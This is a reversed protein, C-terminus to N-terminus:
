RPAPSGSRPRAPRLAATAGVWPAGSSSGAFGTLAVASSAAADGRPLKSCLSVSPAAPSWCGGGGALPPTAAPAPLSAGSASAPSPSAPRLRSARAWVREVASAIGESGLRSRRRWRPAAPASGSRGARRRRLVPETRLAGRDQGPDVLDLGGEAGVEAEGGGAGDAPHLEHGRGPLFVPDVGVAVPDGVGVVGFVRDEGGGAVEGGGAHRGVGVARDEGVVVGVPVDGLHEGVGAAVGAFDASGAEARGPEARLDLDQLQSGASPRSSPCGPRIGPLRRPRRRGSRVRCARRRPAPRPRGGRTSSRGRCPSAASACSRGARGRLSRTSRIRADVTVFVAVDAVGVGGVRRRRQRPHDPRM